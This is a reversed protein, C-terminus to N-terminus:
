GCQMTWFCGCCVVLHIACIYYVAELSGWEIHLRVAINIFCVLEVNRFVVFFDEFSCQEETRKRVSRVVFIKNKQQRMAFHVLVIKTLVPSSTM